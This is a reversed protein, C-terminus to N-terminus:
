RCAWYGWYDPLWHRGCCCPNFSSTVFCGCSPVLCKIECAGGSWQYFCNPSGTDGSCGFDNDADIPRLAQTVAEAPEDAEDPGTACATLTLVVALPAIILLSRHNM